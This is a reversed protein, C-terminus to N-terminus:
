GSVLRLRPKQQDVPYMSTLDHEMLGFLDGLESRSYKLENLYADIIWRLTTPEEKLHRPEVPENRKFGRKSMEVNYYKFMRDDLKGLQWARYILAQMSVGWYAKLEGFKRISLDYFDHVIERGPMLLEAAFRNAEIEQEPHPTQHMVLHAIEHALSFRWRDKPQVSNLFVIPPLGDCPQQCFGDIQPTGFDFRVIIIGADEAIKTLDQVPGRPLKWRQRVAAAVDEIRREFADPDIAPVSPLKSDIEIDRLCKRINLRYIEALGYLVNLDTASLSQRKRHFSVSPDRLYADDFFFSPRVSLVEAFASVLDDNPQIRGHEVKSLTGQSVRGGLLDVLDPQSKRRVQRALTLMRGNFRDSM